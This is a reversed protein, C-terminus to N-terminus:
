GDDGPDIWWVTAASPITLACVWAFFGVYGTQQQMWGSWFQALWVGLAMLGTAFAYHATPYPGRAVRMLYVMYAAFGFGYGFQEVGIAGTIVRLDAPQAVAMWVYLLDPVNLAVVMPLLWRRLGHRSIAYGGLLGGAVLCLVGVTGKAFGVQQVSLGLGGVAREDLLFPTVLKSLHNEAFRYGFIFAVTGLVGPRAFFTRVTDRFPLESAPGRPAEDVVPLILAHWAAGLAFVAAVAALTLSWGFTPDTLHPLPAQHGLAGALMLIGGEGAVMALRYFSSRVGVYAAQTGEDLSLIYHGDCAVDHTASVFAAFLLIGLTVPFFSPLPLAAAVALLAPAMALQMAVTWRRKTSVGDVFPSWLAKFSWVLQFWSTYFTVEANAVGLSKYMAVSVNNVVVYPLGQLFYLTPVWVLPTPRDTAM